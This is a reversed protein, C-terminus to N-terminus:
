LSPTRHTERHLEKLYARVCALAARRSMLHEATDATTFCGPSPPPVRRRDLTTQDRDPTPVPSRVVPAAIAPATPQPDPAAHLGLAAGTTALAGVLVWGVVRGAAPREEGHTLTETETIM